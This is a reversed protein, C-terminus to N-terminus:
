AMVEQLGTRKLHSLHSRSDDELQRRNGYELVEGGELILIDDAREITALRHAIIIGTRGQLLRDVARELLKETVPDLRSSAEDLIVIGPDALFARALAILQAQGASLGGGGIGLETDLGNPLGKVWEELDLHRLADLVQRDSVSPDFLRVNDRITARFLQVEQPVLRVRRRLDSLSVREVLTGNLRIAGEGVDYLRVVLRAFTSKGSGTRGLLGLKRGECIRISVDKLAHSSPRLEGTDAVDAPTLAADVQRDDGNAEYSFLVRDFELALAGSSLEETGQDRVAPHTDLLERIRRMGAEARQLDTVQNRIENIPSFLQQTYYFVLYAGGISIEGRRWLLIIMLFAIATGLAFAAVNAMWMGYGRMGAQRRVPFLKRLFGNFRGMVFSEAGNARIDETGSIQEGIFGFFQATLRRYKTWHPIALKRVEVLVFITLVTFLGMPLGVRWDERFLMSVIGLILLVNGAVSILFKSFFNSLTEVDGDIREILRGPSHDKHFTADLKLCHRLLDLRLANTATWAVTEGVYTSVIILAQTMVALTFFLLAMRILGASDGGGIAADIFGRLIQPNALRVGITALILLGLLVARKRQPLLYTSLLHFYQRIPIRM